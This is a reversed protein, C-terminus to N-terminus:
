LCGSGEDGGFCPKGSLVFQGVDDLSLHDIMVKLRSMDFTLGTLSQRRQEGRVRSTETKVQLSVSTTMKDVSDVSLM